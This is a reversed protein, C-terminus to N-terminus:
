TARRKQPRHAAWLGLAVCVLGALFALTVLVGFLAFLGGRNEPHLLTDTLTGRPELHDDRSPSPAFPGGSPSGQVTPDESAAKEANASATFAELLNKQRNVM